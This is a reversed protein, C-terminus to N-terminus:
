PAAHLWAASAAAASLTIERSPLAGPAPHAADITVVVVDAAPHRRVVSVHAGPVLGLEALYRLLDPDEDTVRAVVGCVGPECQGLPRVQLHPVSGDARPIPDGHPDVEPHGLVADIRDCLTDSAGHELREAEDHVEDWAYGLTSHLFTELLRHRRVMRLALARGDDTLDIAGYPEHRVLGDRALRRINGSVTSTSVGLRGALTSTTAPPGGWETASWILKLYDEAMEGAVIASM